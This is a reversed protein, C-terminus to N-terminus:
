SRTSSRSRVDKLRRRMLRWSPASHKRRLESLKKFKKLNAMDYM